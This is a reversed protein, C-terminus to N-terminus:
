LEGLTSALLIILEFKDIFQEIGAVFIPKEYFTDIKSDM